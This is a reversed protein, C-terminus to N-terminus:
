KSKRVVAFSVKMNYGVLDVKRARPDFQLTHFYMGYPLHENEYVMKGSRKDFAVAESVNVNTRAPLAGQWKMFRSTFLVMPLDEFQSVVLMQNAVATFWEFKKSGRKFAYFTGTVPLSRM